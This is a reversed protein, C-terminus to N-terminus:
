GKAPAETFSQVKGLIDPDTKASGGAIQSARFRDVGAASSSALRRWNRSLGTCLDLVVDDLVTYGVLQESFDGTSASYSVSAAFNRTWSAGGDEPEEFLKSLGLRRRIWVRADTSEKLKTHLWGDPYDKFSLSTDM